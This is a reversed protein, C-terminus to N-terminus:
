EKYYKSLFHQLIDKDINFRDDLDPRTYYMELAMALEAAANALHHTNLDPDFDEGALFIFIHRLCADLLRTVKIGQRWNNDGYKEAGKSFVEAVSFMFLPSILSVRPKKTDLKTGGEERM